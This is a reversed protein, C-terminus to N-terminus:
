KFIGRFLYAQLMVCVHGMAHSSDYVYLGGAIAFILGYIFCNHGPTSYLCHICCLCHHHHHHHHLEIGNTSNAMPWFCLSSSMRDSFCCQLPNILLQWAEQIMQKETWLLVFPKKTWLLLNTLGSRFGHKSVLCSISYYYTYM